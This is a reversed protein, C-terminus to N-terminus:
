VIYGSLIALLFSLITALIINSSLIESGSSLFTAYETGNRLIFSGNLDIFVNAGIRAKVYQDGERCPTNAILNVGVSLGAVQQISSNTISDVTLQTVPTDGACPSAIGENVVEELVFDVVSMISEYDDPDNVTSVSCTRFLEPTNTRTSGGGSTILKIALGERGIDLEGRGIRFYGNEKNDDGWSNKVVWFDISIGSQVHTGYDVIVVAHGRPESEIERFKKSAVSECYIGCQYVSAFEDSIYMGAIVVNGEDLAERIEEDSLLVEYDVLSYTSLLATVRSGDHCQDAGIPCTPLPVGRLKSYKSYHILDGYTSCSDTVIGNNLIFEAGAHLALAGCCGNGNDILQSNTACTTLYRTSLLPQKRGNRISMQDTLANVTAFAWCSGCYGQNQPPALSGNGTRRRLSDSENFNMRNCIAETHQWGCPTEAPFTYGVDRTERKPDVARKLNEIYHDWRASRKAEGVAAHVQMAQIFVAGILLSSAYFIRFYLMMVDSFAQQFSCVFILLHTCRILLNYM